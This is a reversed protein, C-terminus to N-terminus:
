KIYKRDSKFTYYPIDYKDWKLVLFLTGYQKYEKLKVM